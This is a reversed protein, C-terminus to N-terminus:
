LEYVNEGDWFPSDKRGTYDDGIGIASIKNGLMGGGAAFPSKILSDRLELEEEPIVSTIKNTNSENNKRRKLQM